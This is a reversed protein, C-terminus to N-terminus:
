RSWRCRVPSCWPATSGRRSPCAGAGSGSSCTCSGSCRWCPESGSWRRSRSGSWTSPRVSTRRARCGPRRGQRELQPVRAALAPSPDRNRVQGPQRHVLRARARAGRPDDPLPGRDRGAQDAADNAVDRAAWDGVPVQAIAALAAITLPITLAAREYRGWRGRLRGFAYCGAVLFGSVMYGPVYMHILEHWLYTNGFLAKLPDVDVVKGGRLLFGGPHNMWANVSIVMLSGMFGTIAIPIGCLLHAGRRCADGDTSTSGSSSRRWSSRSARSRSGSDSCRGFTGTFNPWLLGMEFSLVTGTIVGFAFLTVMVRTWRRALTLYLQDGTRLHLWEVFLVM